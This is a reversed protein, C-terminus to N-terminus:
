SSYFCHEGTFIILQRIHLMLSLCISRRKFSMQLQRGSNLLQILELQTTRVVMYCFLLDKQRLRTDLSYSGYMVDYVFLCNISRLIYVIGM